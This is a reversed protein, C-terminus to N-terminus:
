RKKKQYVPINAELKTGRGPLSSIKLSGSLLELREAIGTLGFSNNKSKCDFSQAIGCGDDIIQLLLSGEMSSLVINVQSAGAHKIINTLAEQVIRFIEGEVLKPLEFESLISYQFNIKISTTSSWRDVLSLLAENLGLDELVLPRLEWAIDHIQQELEGIITGLQDFYVETDPTSNIEKKLGKLCLTLAVIEQGIQDHLERAIRKRELERTAELELFFQALSLKIKKNVNFTSSDNQLSFEGWHSKSKIIQRKQRGTKISEALM